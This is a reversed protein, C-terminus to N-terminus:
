DCIDPMNMAQQGVNQIQQQQLPQQMQQQQVPQMMQQQQQVMPQQQQYVPQIAQQQFLQPLQPVQAVANVGNMTVGNVNQSIATGIGYVMSNATVSAANGDNVFRSEMRRAEELAERVNAPRQLHIIARYSPLLGNIFKQMLAHENYQGNVAMAQFLRELDYYFSSVDEGPRQQRQCFKRFAVDPVGETVFIALM